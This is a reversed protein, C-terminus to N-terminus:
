LFVIWNNVHWSKKRNRRAARKVCRSISLNKFRLPSTRQVERHPIIRLNSAEKISKQYKRICVYYSQPRFDLFQPVFSFVYLHSGRPNCSAVPLSHGDESHISAHSVAHRSRRPSPRRRCPLRHRQSLFLQCWTTLLSYERLM